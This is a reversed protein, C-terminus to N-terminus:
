IVRPKLEPLASHGNHTLVVKMIELGEMGLVLSPSLFDPVCFLSAGLLVFLM